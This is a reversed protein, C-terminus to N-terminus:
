IFNKREVHLRFLNSKVQSNYLELVPLRLIFRKLRLKEWVAEKENSKVVKILLQIM